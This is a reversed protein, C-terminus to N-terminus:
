IRGREALSVVEGLGVVVHDLVRVDVLALADKLQRTIRADAESPEAVGSPHNHALILAAANHAMARRVVERPYVAASDITGRFLEEFAILRNQSDLFLAAFIEQKRGQLQLRLFSSVADPSTFVQHRQMREKLHRRALELSAQLQAYKASGLGKLACFQGRDAGLLGALSGFHALMERALDVATKGASGTRLFIALLETDSLAAAGQQILKERPREGEPWDQIAM